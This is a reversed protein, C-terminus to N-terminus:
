GDPLCKRSTSTEGSPERNNTSVIPSFIYVESIYMMSRLPLLRCIIMPSRLPMTRDGEQDMSPCDIRNVWSTEPLSDMVPLISSLRINRYSRPLPSVVLREWFLGCPVLSMCGLNEGVPACIMKVLTGLLSERGGSIQTISSFPSFLSCNTVLPSNGWQFSHFISPDCCSTDM